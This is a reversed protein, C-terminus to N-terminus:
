WLMADVAFGVTLPRNYISHSKAEGAAPTLTYDYRIHNYDVYLRLGMYNTALWRLSLGTTFTLHERNGFEITAMPEGSEGAIHNVMRHNRAVGVLSKLMVHLRENRGLPHDYFLGATLSLNNIPKPEEIVGGGIEKHALLTAYRGVKASGGVGLHPSFFWAGEVSFGIGSPAVRDYSKRDYLLLNHAIGIGFFSPNARSRIEEQLGDPHLLGRERFLRDAITYGIETSLIGVGAGVVVDSLWHRNNLSRSIGTAAALTYGAISLWPGVTQGYEKHLVTAATFAMATHGSPFSNYTSGDPRLRGLGYKVVYVTSLMVGVSLADSVVMREWSSRNEVGLLKLGYTLVMPSFQLYDDYHYRFNPLYDGRLTRTQLDAGTLVLGAGVLGLGAQTTRASWFSPRTPSKVLSLSDRTGYDIVSARLPSGGWGLAVMLLVITIVRKM